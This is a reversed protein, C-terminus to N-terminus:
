ISFGQQPIDQATQFLLLDKTRASENLFSRFGIKSGSKLDPTYSINYLEKLCTPTILTAYSPDITDPDTTGNNTSNTSGNYQRSLLERVGHDM